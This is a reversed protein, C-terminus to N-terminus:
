FFYQIYRLRQLSLIDLHQKGEWTIKKLNKREKETFLSEKDKVTDFDEFDKQLGSSIPFAFLAQNHLAESKLNKEFFMISLPSSPSQTIILGGVVKKLCVSHDYYFIANKEQLKGLHM